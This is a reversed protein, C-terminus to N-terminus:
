STRLLFYLLLFIQCELVDCFIFKHVRVDARAFVNTIILNQNQYSQFAQTGYYDAEYM